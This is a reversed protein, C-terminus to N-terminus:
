TKNTSVPPEETQPQVPATGDREARSQLLTQAVALAPVALLIGVVGFLTGFFLAGLLVLLPHLGLGRGQIRPILIQSELVNVLLLGAGAILLSTAPTPGTVSSLVVLLMTIWFGLLPVLSLMGGLVGLALPQPLGGILFILSFVVMEILAVLVQGRIYIALASRVARSLSRAPDHWSPPLWRGIWRGAREWDVTLYYAIMPSLALVAVVQLIKGLGKGMGVLGKAATGLYNEAYRVMQALWPPLGHAAEGAALPPLASVTSDPSSPVPPPTGGVRTLVPGLSRQLLEYARPLKAVLLQAQEALAPLLLFLALAAFLGVPLLALLTALPRRVRRAELWAVPTVLLHALLAGCALPYVVWRAQYLIWLTLFLLLLHRVSRGEEEGALPRSFLWVALFLAPPGLTRHAAWLLAALALALFLHLPRFPKM